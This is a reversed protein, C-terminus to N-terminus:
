MCTNNICLFRVSAPGCLTTCNPLPIGVAPTGSSVCANDICVYGDAPPAPPAPPATCSTLELGTLEVDNWSATFTVASVNNLPPDFYGVAPGVVTAGQWVVAMQGGTNKGNSDRFNLQVM